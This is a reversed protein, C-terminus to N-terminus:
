NLLQKIEQMQANSLPGHEIAAANNLVQATNRFGPIPLTHEGLGWIWALAGQNVTRGKSTLISQIGALKNLLEPSAKGNIFYKLWEPNICRIDDKDLISSHHYKGSLLGMALPGRNIATKNHKACFNVLDNNQDLVNNQFQFAICHEASSFAKARDLFDTSWAYARIKGAKVLHELTEVIQGINEAPYENLHLQYLDIYETGLRKLSNECHRIIVDHQDFIGSITKSDEDFELGFKTGIIAQQRKNALAKGLVRESHGAGYVAATDFFNIGADLAAHIASISVADDVKGWGCPKNDQDFFPGGIAWCGLGLPSVKWEGLQRLQM